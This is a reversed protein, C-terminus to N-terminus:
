RLLQRAALVSGAVGLAGPVVALWTLPGLVLGVVIVGLVWSCLALYLILTLNM